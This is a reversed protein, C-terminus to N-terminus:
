FGDEAIEAEGQELTEALLDRIANIKETTGHATNEIAELMYLLWGEWEGRETVARLSRYYQAKHEIIFRSLFLIPIELLRNM